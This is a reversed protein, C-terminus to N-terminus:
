VLGLATTASGTVIRDFAVQLADGAPISTPRIRDFLAITKDKSWFHKRTIVTQHNCVLGKIPAKKEDGYQSKDDTFQEGTKLNVLERFERSPQIPRNKRPTDIGGMAFVYAAWDGSDAAARATEMEGPITERLRRLERWVTVSPGGIQQFQRINWTSAWCRIRKANSQADGGFRDDGVHTGDINKAVYKAIYGAASGKSRDIKVAKFRYKKAGKETERLAYKKVIKRVLKTHEPSMFLLFHWHPTGDHHPEAVRFGFPRIGQRALEARIMAWTQNLWQQADKPTLQEFKKNAKGNHHYAHFRSPTTLTYFEGVHGVTDAVTEFGHIRAMLEHRRNTPNSTNTEAIRALSIEEGDQNSITTNEMYQQNLREQQEHLSFTYDATYLNKKKNV